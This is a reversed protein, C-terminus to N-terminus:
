EEEKRKGERGGERGGEWTEVAPHLLFGHGTEVSICSEREEARLYVVLYVVVCM